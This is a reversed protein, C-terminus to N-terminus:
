QGCAACRMAVADGWNCHPLRDTTVSEPMARAALLGAVAVVFSESILGRLDDAM